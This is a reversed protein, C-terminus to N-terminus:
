RNSVPRISAVMANIEEQTLLRGSSNPGTTVEFAFYRDASDFLDLHVDYPAISPSGLQFGHYDGHAITYIPANESHLSHFQLLAGFKLTLLCNVRENESSRFRWWEVQKPTAFMSAQM